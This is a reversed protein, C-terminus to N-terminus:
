ALLFLFICSEKTSKGDSIVSDDNKGEDSYPESKFSICVVATPEVASFGSTLLQYVREWWDLCPFYSISLGIAFANVGTEEFPSDGYGFKLSFDYARDSLNIVM